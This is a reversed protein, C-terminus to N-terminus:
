AFPLWRIKSGEIGAAKPTKWSPHVAVRLTSRATPPKKRPLRGLGRPERTTPVGVIRTIRLGHSLTAEAAERVRPVQRALWRHVMGVGTPRFVPNTLIRHRGLCPTLIQILEVDNTGSEVFLEEQLEVRM